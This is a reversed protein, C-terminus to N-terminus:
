GVLIFSEALELYQQATLQVYRFYIRFQFTQVAGFNSSNAALYLRPAAIILPPFFQHIKPSVQERGGTTVLASKVTFLDLIRRDIADEIDPVDNSTTVAFQCSDNLASMETVLLDNLYYSIQDILMGVGQGLSVGTLIENFTLTNAASLTVQGAAVNAFRDERTGQGM